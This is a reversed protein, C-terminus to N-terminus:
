HRQKQNFSYNDNNYVDHDAVFKFLYNIIFIFIAHVPISGQPVGKYLQLFQWCKGGKCM